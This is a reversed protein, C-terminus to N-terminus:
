KLRVVQGTRISEVERWCLELSDRASQGSLLTPEGDSAITEVAYQIERAFGDETSLTPEDVGDATVVCLPSGWTSNYQVVANEFYVDFGHEFSRGGQGVAGSQATITVGLAAEMPALLAVLIGCRATCAVREDGDQGHCPM